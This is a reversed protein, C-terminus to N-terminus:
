EIPDKIQKNIDLPQHMDSNLTEANLSWKQKSKTQKGRAAKESRYQARLLIYSVRLDQATDFLKPNETGMIRLIIPAGMM